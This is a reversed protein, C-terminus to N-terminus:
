RGTEVRDYIRLMRRILHAWKEQDPAAAVHAPSPRGMEADAPLGADDRFPEDWFPDSEIEVVVEDKVVVEDEDVADAAVSGRLSEPEPSSEVSEVVQAAEDSLAAATAPLWQRADRLVGITQDVVEITRDVVPGLAEELEPTLRDDAFWLGAGVLLVCMMGLMLIARIM